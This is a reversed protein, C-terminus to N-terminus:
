GVIVQILLRNCGPFDSFGDTLHAITQLVRRDRNDLLFLMLAYNILDLLVYGGIFPLDVVGSLRGLQLLLNGQRTDRVGILAVAHHM